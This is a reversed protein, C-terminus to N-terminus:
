CLLLRLCLIVILNSPLVPHNSESHNYLRTRTRPSSFTVTNWRSSLKAEDKSTYRFFYSIICNSPYKGTWASSTDHSCSNHHVTILYYVIWVTSYVYYILRIRYFIINCLWQYNVNPCRADETYSRCKAVRWLVSKVYKILLYM